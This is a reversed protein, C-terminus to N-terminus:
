VLLDPFENFTQETLLYVDANKAKVPASYYKASLVLKKPEGGNISGTFFGSDWTKLNEAQLFLPKAPDIGRDRPDADPRTVRLRLDHARGYGATIDAPSSGDPSMRWVDFKDYLLVSKGDKTWGGSGYANPSSPTDTEENFFKVPLKATLNVTKGDAVSVTSWDRGDFALIYKGDPSLSATGHHKKLVLKRAGTATDILYADSYREDYDNMRRYERTDTGLAVQPNDSLSVQELTPDALQVVKHVAISYVATFTRNRDRAATVKQISQIYDDKYSWLDLVAKAD